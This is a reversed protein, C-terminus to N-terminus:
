VTIARAWATRADGDGEGDGDGDGDGGGGGGDGGGVGGGGDGGGVVGGPSRFYETDTRYRFRCLQQNTM